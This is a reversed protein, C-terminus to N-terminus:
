SDALKRLQAELQQPLSRGRKGSREIIGQAAKQSLSFRDHATEVLVDQLSSYAAGVNPSESLNVTSYEGLSTTFGSNPWRVSSLSSIEDM